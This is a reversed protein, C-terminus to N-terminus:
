LFVTHSKFTFFTCPILQASNISCLIKLFCSRNLVLFVTNIVCNNFFKLFYISAPPATPLSCSTNVVSRHCPEQSRLKMREWFARWKHFMSERPSLSGRQSGTKFSLHEWHQFPCLLSSVPSPAACCSSIWGPQAM